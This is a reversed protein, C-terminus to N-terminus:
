SFMIFYCYCNGDEWRYCGLQETRNATMCFGYDYASADDICRKDKMSDCKRCKVTKYTKGNCGSKQCVHCNKGAKNCEAANKETNMCGRKLSDGDMITFCKDPLHGFVQPRCPTSETKNFCMSPTATTITEECQVCTFTNTYAPNANSRGKICYRRNGRCKEMGISDEDDSMCGRYTLYPRIDKVYNREVDVDVFFSLM